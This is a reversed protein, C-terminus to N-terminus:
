DESESDPAVTRRPTPSARRARSKEKAAAAKAARLEKATPPPAPRPHKARYHMTGLGLLFAGVICAIAKKEESTLVFVQRRLQTRAKM